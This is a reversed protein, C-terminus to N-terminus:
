KGVAVKRRWGQVDWGSRQRKLGKGTLVVKLECVTELLNKHSSSRQWDTSFYIQLKWVSTSHSWDMPKPPFVQPNLVPQYSSLQCPFSPPIKEHFIHVRMKEPTKRCLHCIWISEQETHSSPFLKQKIQSLWEYLHKEAQKLFILWTDNNKLATIVARFSGLQWPGRVVNKLHAYSLETDDDGTSPQAFQPSTTQGFYRWVAIVHRLIPSLDGSDIDIKVAMLFCSLRIMNWSSPIAYGGTCCWEISSSHRRSTSQHWCLGFFHANSSCYAIHYWLGLIYKQTQMFYISVWEEIQLYFKINGPTSKPIREAAKAMSYDPLM